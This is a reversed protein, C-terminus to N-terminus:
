WTFYDSAILAKTARGMCIERPKASICSKRDEAKDQEFGERVKSIDRDVKGPRYEGYKKIDYQKYLKVCEDIYAIGADYDAMADYLRLITTNRTVDGIGKPPLGAAYEKKIFEIYQRVPSDNNSERAQVLTELEKKRDAFYENEPATECLMSMRKLAEEYNGEKQLVRAYMSSPRWYDQPIMRKGIEIAQNYKEKALDFQLAQELANGEKELANEKFMNQMDEIYLQKWTKWNPDNIAVEYGHTLLKIRDPSLKNKMAYELAEINHVSKAIMTEKMALRYKLKDEEIVKREQEIAQEFKGQRIYLNRAEINGPLKPMPRKFSDKRLWIAFLLLGMLAFLFSWALIKPKRNKLEM